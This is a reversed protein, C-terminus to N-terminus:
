KIVRIKMEVNEIPRDRNDTQSKAIKDIVDLGEIVQGFVTYERDLFPTGGKENYIERQRKSYRIGKQSEIRNLSEENVPRGHVIYFQSGSSAKEPNVNDGMRAAALAGRVHVLSDVFEAPITYGPGGSGLPQGKRANKSKPDGGQVMFGDIVRHFLLSDYFGEEALKIFNEQHKPTADYLQIIMNGFATELEILCTTPANVVLRESTVKKKGKENIATLTILYNGSSRYKHNPEAKESTNGDGFDWQYSTAKESQNEFQIEAPAIMEGSYTFKAVPRSCAAGVVLLIVWAIKRM